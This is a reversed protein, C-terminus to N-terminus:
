HAHILDLIAQSSTSARIKERHAEDRLYEAGTSLLKLYDAQSEANNDPVLLAYILDVQHEGHNDYEILHNLKVFAGLPHDVGQVRAHPIAVGHGVATTGLRERELLATLIDKYDVGSLDHFLNSLIEFVQKKKM